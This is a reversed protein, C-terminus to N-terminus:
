PVACAAQPGGLYMALTAVMLGVVGVAGSLAFSGRFEILNPRTARAVFVVVLGLLLGIVAYEISWLVIWIRLLEPKLSPRPACGLTTYIVALAAGFLVGNVIWAAVSGAAKM